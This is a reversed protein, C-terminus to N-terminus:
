KADKFYRAVKDTNARKGTIEYHINRLQEPKLDKKPIIMSLMHSDIGKLPTIAFVKGEYGLKKSIRKAIIGPFSGMLYIGYFDLRDFPNTTSPASYHMMQNDLGDYVSPFGLTYTEVCCNLAMFAVTNRFGQKPINVPRTRYVIQGTKEQYELTSKIEDAVGLISDQFELLKKKLDGNTNWLKIELSDPEFPSTLVIPHHFVWRDSNIHPKEHKIM